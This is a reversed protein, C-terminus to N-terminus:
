TQPEPALPLAVEMAGIRDTSIDRVAVRISTANLPVDIQQEARFFGPKATEGSPPTAVESTGVVGNLMTGEVDFAAAAIELAVLRGNRDAISARPAMVAYDIAYSQLKIPPMAKAPRNKHRVVFFGSEALNAMQEPTAM